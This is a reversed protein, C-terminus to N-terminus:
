KKSGMVDMDLTIDENAFNTFTFALAIDSGIASGEGDVMFIEEEIMAPEDFFNFNITNGDAEIKNVYFDWEDITIIVGDGNKSIILNGEVNDEYGLGYNYILGVVYYTGVIKDIPSVDEESKSCGFGVIAVLVFLLRNFYLNKM